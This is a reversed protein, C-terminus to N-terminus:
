RYIDNDAEHRWAYRNLTAWGASLECAPRRLHPLHCVVNTLYFLSRKYQFRSSLIYRTTTVPVFQVHFRAPIEFPILLKCKTPYNITDTIHALCVSWDFINTCGRKVCVCTYAIFKREIFKGVRHTYSRVAFQAIYTNNKIGTPTDVPVTLLTM